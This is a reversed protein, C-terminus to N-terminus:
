DALGAGPGVHAHRFALGPRRQGAKDCLAAQEAAVQELAPPDAALGVAAAGAPIQVGAQVQNERLAAPQPLEKHGLGPFGAHPPPHGVIVVRPLEQFLDAPPVELLHALSLILAM